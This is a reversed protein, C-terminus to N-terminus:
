LRGAAKLEGLKYQFVYLGKIQKYFFFNFDSYAKGAWDATMIIMGPSGDLKVSGYFVTPIQSNSLEVLQELSFEKPLDIAFIPHSCLILFILLINKM